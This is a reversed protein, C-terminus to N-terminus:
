TWNEVQGWLSPFNDWVTYGPFGNKAIVKINTIKWRHNSQLMVEPFDQMVFKSKDMSYLQQKTSLSPIYEWDHM